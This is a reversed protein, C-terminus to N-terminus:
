YRFLAALPANGPVQGQEVAYVRGSNFITYFAALDLLDQDGPEAQEHLHVEGTEPNFSGWQQIDVAVFLTDVRGYYAAPLIEAVATSTRGTGVLQTYEEVAAKQEQLFHPEVILWARAHLEEPRLEEPNGTVGEELLHGYSNAEHYIPFLYEVGALVLPARRGRFIDQLGRDIQQFYRLINSKKDEDGAGTGYFIAAEGRPGSGYFVAAQRNGGGSFSAGQTGTHWQLQREPDDYKLAEALSSPVDELEVQTVSHRTGQLLRVENQSLALVFFRGNNTFLTLLPKLHFREAVVVLEEFHLPMRYVRFVDRACFVALGDSPYQWFVADDLLLQAPRLIARAEASRVGYEVLRDEAERLLNKLRVPNQQTEPFARYMSLYISVCPGDPKEMLLQLENRSLIDM